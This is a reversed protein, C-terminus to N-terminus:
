RRRRRQVELFILVTAVLGASFGALWDGNMAGNMMIAARM